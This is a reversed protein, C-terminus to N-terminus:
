RREEAEAQNTCNYSIIKINLMSIVREYKYDFWITNSIGHKNSNMTKKNDVISVLDYSNKLDGFSVRVSRWTGFSFRFIFVSAFSSRFLYASRLSAGTVISLHTFVTERRWKTQDLAPASLDSDNKHVLELVALQFHVLVWLKVLAQLGLWVLRQISRLLSYCTCLM